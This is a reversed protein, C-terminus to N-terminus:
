INEMLMLRGPATIKWQLGGGLDPRISAVVRLAALADLASRFETTAAPPRLELNLQIFLTSESLLYSGCQDLIKLIMVRVIKTREEPTNM